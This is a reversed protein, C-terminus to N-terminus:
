AVKPMFSFRGRLLPVLRVPRPKSPSIPFSKLKVKSHRLLRQGIDLEDTGPFFARYRRRDEVLLESAQASGRDRGLREVESRSVFGDTLCMPVCILHRDVRIATRVSAFAVM